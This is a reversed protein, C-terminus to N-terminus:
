NNEEKLADFHYVIDPLNDSNDLIQYSEKGSNFIQKNALLFEAKKGYNKKLILIESDSKELFSNVKTYLLLDNSSLSHKDTITSTEFLARVLLFITILANITFFFNLLSLSGVTLYGELILNNKEPATENIFFNNIFNYPNFLVNITFYYVFINTVLNVLITILKNVALYGSWFITIDDECLKEKPLLINFLPTHTTLLYIIIICCILTTIILIINSYVLSLVELIIVRINTPFWSSINILFIFKPKWLLLCTGLFICYTLPFNATSEVFKKVKKIQDITNTEM